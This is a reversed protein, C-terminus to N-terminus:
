HELVANTPFPRAAGCDFGVGRVRKKSLFELPTCEGFEKSFFLESQSKNLRLWGKPRKFGNGIIWRTDDKPHFVVVPYEM